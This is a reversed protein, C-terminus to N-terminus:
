TRPVNTEELLSSYRMFCEVCETLHRTLRVRKKSGSITGQALAVLDDDKAHRKFPKIQQAWIYYSSGKRGNM